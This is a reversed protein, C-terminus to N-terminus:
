DLGCTGDSKGESKDETKLFEMQEKLISDLKAQFAAWDTDAGKRAAISRATRLLSNAEGLRRRWTLGQCAEWCHPDLYKASLLSPSYSKM